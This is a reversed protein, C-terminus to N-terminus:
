VHYQVSFLRLERSCRFILNTYHHAGFRLNQCEKRKLNWRHSKNQIKWRYGFPPPPLFGWKAPFFVKRFRNPRAGARHTSVTFIFIANFHTEKAWLALRGERQRDPSFPLSKKYFIIGSRDRSNRMHLPPLTQQQLWRM